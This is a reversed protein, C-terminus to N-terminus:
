EQCSSHPNGCLVGSSSERVSSLLPLEAPRCVKTGLFASFVLLTSFPMETHRAAWVGLTSVLYSGLEKSWWPVHSSIFFHGQCWTRAWGQWFSPCASLSLWFAKVLCRGQHCLLWPPVSIGLRKGIEPDGPWFYRNEWSCQDSKALPFRCVAPYHLLLCVVADTRSKNVSAPLVSLDIAGDLTQLKM